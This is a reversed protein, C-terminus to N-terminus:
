LCGYNNKNYTGFYILNAKEAISAIISCRNGPSSGLEKLWWYFEDVHAISDRKLGTNEDHQLSMFKNILDSITYIGEKEFLKITNSGISPIDKLDDTNHNNM